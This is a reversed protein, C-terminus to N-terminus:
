PLRRCNRVGFNFKKGTEVDELIYVKDNKGSIFREFEIDTNERQLSIIDANGNSEKCDGSVEENIIENSLDALKYVPSIISFTFDSYTRDDKKYFLRVDKTIELKVTEPEIDVNFETHGGQYNYRKLSEELSNFCSEVVPFLDKELENEINGILAPELNVCNEENQETYCLYAFSRLDYRITKKGTLEVYGGNLLIRDISDEAKDDICEKIFQQPNISPDTGIIGPGGFLYIAIAIAGVVLVAIIVFVTVQGKKM